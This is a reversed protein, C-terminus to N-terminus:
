PASTVGRGEAEARDEAETSVPIEPIRRPRLTVYSLVVGVALLAITVWLGVHYGDVFAESPSAGGRLASADRSRLVAGIMTIGLLGAVERSANILASVVGAREQPANMKNPAPAPSIFTGSIFEMMSALQSRQELREKGHQARM